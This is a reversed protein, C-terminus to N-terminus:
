EKEVKSIDEIDEESATACFQHAYVACSKIKYIIDISGIPKYVVDELEYISGMHSEGIDKVTGTFSGAATYFVWRKGIEYKLM